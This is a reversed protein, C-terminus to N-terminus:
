FTSDLFAFYKHTKGGKGSSSLNLSSNLVAPPDQGLQEQLTRLLKVFVNSLKSKKKTKRWEYPLKAKELPVINKQKLLWLVGLITDM